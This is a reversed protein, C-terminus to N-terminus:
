IGEYEFGNEEMYSIVQRKTYASSEDALIKIAGVLLERPVDKTTQRFNCIHRYFLTFKTIVESTPRNSDM